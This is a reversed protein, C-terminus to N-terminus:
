KKKQLNIKHILNFRIIDRDYYDVGSSRQQFSKLYGLEVAINKNIGYQFAAYIRNQDFTNHVINEGANIFIEDYM